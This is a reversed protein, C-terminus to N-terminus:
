EDLNSRLTESKGKRILCTNEDVEETENTASEQARKYDNTFFFVVAVFCISGAVLFSSSYLLGQLSANLFTHARNGHHMQVKAITMRQNQLIQFLVSSLSMRITQLCDFSKVEACVLQYARFRDYDLLSDGRFADSVQLPLLWLYVLSTIQVMGVLQASPITVIGSILKSLAVAAARSNSPVVM